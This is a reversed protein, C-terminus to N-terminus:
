QPFALPPEAHQRSAIKTESVPLRVAVLCLKLHNISISDESLTTYIRTKPLNLINIQTKKAKQGKSSAGQRYRVM